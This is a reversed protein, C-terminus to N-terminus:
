NDSVQKFIGGVLSLRLLLAEREASFKKMLPLAPNEKTKSTLDLLQKYLSSVLMDKNPQFNEGKLCALVLNLFPQQSLLWASQQIREKSSDNATDLMSAAEKLFKGSVTMHHFQNPVNSPQPCLRVLSAILWFNTVHRFRFDRGLIAPPLQIGEKHANTFLDRCCKGIEGMLADAAIASQQAHKQAGEPSIEKIMLMLDFLTARMNWMNMVALLKDILAKKSNGNCVSLERLVERESRRRIGMRLLQQGLCNQKLRDHNFAEMRNTEVIRFMKLTVWDEECIVSQTAKLLIMLYERRYNTSDIIRSPEFDLDKFRGRLTDMLICINSLMPFLVSDMECWHIMSLIHEDACKPLLKVKPNTGVYHESLHYPEDTACSIQALILLTLCAGPECDYESRGLVNYRGSVFSSQERKMVVPFANNLLEAILRPVSFAYKGALLLVFTALPYHTSCDNIDIHALLEGYGTHQSVSTCCLAKIAAVWEDALAPIQASIHGCFAALDALRDHDRMCNKAAIFSNIVFSYRNYLQGFSPLRKKYEHYSFFRLKKEFVDTFFLANYRCGGNYSSSGHNFVHRFDDHAGHLKIPSLQSKKLQCKSHYVFAAITRGWSTVPYEHARIMREILEYLQNTIVPALDSHLFYHWHRSIYAVFVYGLQGSMSGPIVDAALSRIVKEASLLMPTVAECLEFIGYIYQAAEFMGCIIDLGESTPMQLSHGLVFDRIMDSFSEACWGCIMMQDYYTQSRFRALIEVIKQSNISQKWLPVENGESFVVCIKKQWIKCIEKAIKKMEAKHNERVDDMGYLVLARQNAESRHEETQRLPMQILIRDNVSMPDNLYIHEDKEDQRFSILSSPKPPEDPTLDEFQASILSSSIVDTAKNESKYKDMVPRQYDLEGSKILEKVFCDHVFLKFRSLEIFLTVLSAFEQHYYKSGVTPAETYFYNLIIDQMHFPGFMYSQQQLVQNYIVKTVIVARHSGEREATVAWHLMLKMRILVDEAWNESQFNFLRKTVTSLVNPEFVDTSDLIGIVDLCGNVLKAFAFQEKQNFSWKDQVAQSRRVIEATRLKLLESFRESDKGPTLPLEHVACPLLDLPSGCLQSLIFPLKDTTSVKFKNWIVAAPADIVINQLIAILVHIVPRYASCQTLAIFAEAGKTITNNQEDYEMKYLRLKMAIMHALRRALILNNNIHRLFQTLFMLYVRLQPLKEENKVRRVFYDSFIDCLENLFDQREIVGDEFAIKSLNSIYLWREKYIPCTSLDNVCWMRGTLDKIAKVFIEKYEASFLDSISKKQKTTNSSGTLAATVKLYWLARFPPIRYDCLYELGDQRKITPVKKALQSLAKGRALDTFWVAREKTKTAVFQAGATERNKRREKDLNANIEGKRHLVFNLLATSKAHAEDLRDLKASRSNFVLSEHEFPTAGVQYGKRLRENSLNDEEQRPEQPHVDPPGIKHRRLTRKDATSQYWSLVKSTKASM